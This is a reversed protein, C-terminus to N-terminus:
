GFNPFFIFYKIFIFQNVEDAHESMNQKWLTILNEAERRSIDFKTSLMTNLNPNDYHQEMIKMVKENDYKIDSM